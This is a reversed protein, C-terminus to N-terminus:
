LEPQYFLLPKLYDVYLNIGDELKTMITEDILPNNKSEIKIEYSGKEEVTDFIFWSGWIILLLGLIGTLSPIEGLLFFASILGM